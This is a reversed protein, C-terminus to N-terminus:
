GSRPTLLSEAVRSPAKSCSPLLLLLIMESMKVNAYQFSTFPALPDVYVVM